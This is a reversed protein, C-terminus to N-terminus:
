PAVAGEPNTLLARVCVKKGPTAPNKASARVLVAKNRPRIDYHVVSSEGHRGKTEFYVDMICSDNRYQWVQMMGDARKLEPVAFAMMVEDDMLSLIRDPYKSVLDKVAQRHRRRETETMPKLRYASGGSMAAAFAKNSPWLKYSVHSTLLVFPMLSLVLTAAAMMLRARSAGRSFGALAFDASRSLFHHSRM